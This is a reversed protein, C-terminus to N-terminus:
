SEGNINGERSIMESYNEIIQYIANLKRDIYSILDRENRVMDDYVMDLITQYRQYDNGIQKVIYESINNEEILNFDYLYNDGFEIDTYSRIISLIFLLYRNPTQYSFIKEGDSIGQIHLTEDIIRKANAVKEEYNIYYKVIHKRVYKEKDTANKFGEVFENVKM